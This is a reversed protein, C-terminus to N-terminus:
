YERPNAWPAGHFNYVRERQIDVNKEVISSYPLFRSYMDKDFFPLEMLIVLPALIILAKIANVKRSVEKPETFLRVSFDSIFLIFYIAYFHMYRYALPLRFNIVAIILFLMLFPELKILSNSRDKKKIVLLSMVPYAYLIINSIYGLINLGSEIYSDDMLYENVKGYASESFAILSLHEEIFPAVMISAVFSALLAAFGVWNLRLFVLLPTIICMIASFHFMSAILYLAIAKLWKRELCYDNAFLCISLAMSARMEEMHYGYYQWIFYFFLATFVYTTHRQLYKFVLLDVFIAQIFQVVYFKGGLSYVVSNLLKFLPDSGFSLDEWTLEWLKPIDHYFHDIYRATDLGVRYRMGAILVFVVFVFRLWFDKNKKAGSIDFQFCLFLLIILVLLYVM